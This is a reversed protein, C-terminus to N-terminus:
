NIKFEFLEDTYLLLPPIPDRSVFGEDKIWGTSQSVTSIIYASKIFRSSTRQYVIGYFDGAKTQVLQQLALVKTTDPGQISIDGLQAPYKYFVRSTKGKDYSVCLGTVRNTYLMSQYSDLHSNQQFTEIIPYWTEGNIVTDRDISYGLVATDKVNGSSDYNTRAYKWYNGVKLPYLVGAQGSSVPGDRCSGILIVLFSILLIRTNLM